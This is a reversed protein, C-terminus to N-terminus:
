RSFASGNHPPVSTAILPSRQWLARLRAAHVSDVRPVTWELCVGQSERRMAEPECLRDLQRSGEVREGIRRRLLGREPMLVIRELAYEDLLGPGNADQFASLTKGTLGRSRESLLFRACAVPVHMPVGGEEIKARTMAYFDKGAQGPGAALTAQDESSLLDYPHTHALIAAIDTTM